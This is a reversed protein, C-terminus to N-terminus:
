LLTRRDMTVRAPAFATALARLSRATAFRRIVTKPQTARVLAVTDSLATCTWAHIAGAAKVLLDRRPRNVYGHVRHRSPSTRCEGFLRAHRRIVRRGLPLCSAAADDSRSVTPALRNSEDGVKDHLSIGAGDGLQQLAKQM